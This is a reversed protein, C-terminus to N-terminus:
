AGGNEKAKDTEKAEKNFEDAIVGCRYIIMGAFNAVDAAELRIRDIADGDLPISCLEDSLEKVEDELCHFLTDIGLHEFGGKHNNKYLKDVMASVTSIMMKSILEERTMSYEM